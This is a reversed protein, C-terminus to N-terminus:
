GETGLLGDFGREAVRVRIGGRQLRQQAAGLQAETEQSGEGGEQSFFQPVAKGTGGRCGGGEAESREGGGGHQHTGCTAGHPQRTGTRAM